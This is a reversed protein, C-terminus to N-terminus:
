VSTTITMVIGKNKDWIYTLNQKTATIYGEDFHWLDTGTVSPNRRFICGKFTKVSEIHKHAGHFERYITEGWIKPAETSMLDQIEREKENDAHGLGLMCKGFQLYKRGIHKKDVKVNQDNRYWASLVEAAMLSMTYDHNGPILIIEINGYRKFEDVAWINLEVGKEFMKQFREDNDQITGKQTTGFLNDSNFFDNGIPYVIREFEVDKIKNLIDKVVTVFRESAIKFDFNNNTNGEWCLKNFHFDTFTLELMKDSPKHEIQDFKPREIHSCLKEYLKDITDQKFLECKPKVTIKSAYLTQIGDKKSYTNWINSKATVIEWEDLSYGHAKLLFEKDKAQEESMEILKESKQSGDSMIEISDKKIEPTTPIEEGKGRPKFNKYKPNRLFMNKINGVTLNIGQGALATQIDAYPVGKSHEDFIYSKVDM